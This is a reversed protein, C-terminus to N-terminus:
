SPRSSQAPKEGTLLPLLIRRTVRLQLHFNKLSILFNGAGIAFTLLAYLLEQHILLFFFGLLLCIVSWFILFGLTSPFLRYRLFVLCGTSTPEISGVVLPLFTEPSRLMRSIRFAPEQIRGNFLFRRSESRSPRYPRTSELTAQKLDLWVADAPRALVLTERQYPLGPM